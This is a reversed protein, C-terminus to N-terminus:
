TLGRVKGTVPLVGLRRGAARFSPLTGGTIATPSFGVQTLTTFALWSIKAIRLIALATAWGYGSEYAARHVAKMIVGRVAQWGKVSIVALRGRRFM